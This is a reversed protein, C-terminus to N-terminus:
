SCTFGMRGENRRRGRGATFGSPVRSLNSLADVFDGIGRTSLPLCWMIRACLVCCLPHNTPRLIQYVDVYCLANECGQSAGSSANLRGDCRRRPGAELFASAAAM